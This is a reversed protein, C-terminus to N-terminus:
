NNQRSDLSVHRLREAVKEITPFDNVSVELVDIGPRLGAVSERVRDPSFDFYPLLDTKTILVLDAARFMVPYKEVKDDGEPVSLLVINLHCGVDYSAPCVLNGVNEVFCLELDDLPLRAQGKHVMFADLHCASGTQIQFAPIGKARIRDADRNTELDGEIVGFRFAAVDALAELLTTKGSGPGSMMNVALVNHSEFHQRVREAQRDNKSLIKQVVAITAADNLHPNNEPQRHDRPSKHGTCGCDTCM